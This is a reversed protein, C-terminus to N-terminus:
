NAEQVLRDPFMEKQIKKRQEQQRLAPLLTSDISM